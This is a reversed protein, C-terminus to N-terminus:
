QRPRVMSDLLGALRKAQNRRSYFEIAAENRPMPIERTKAWQEYWGELVRAIQESTDATVGAGTRALLDAVDGHDDPTALIPRRAGLYDFLKGTLVGKEGAVTLLLLVSSTQQVAVAQKHPAFPFIRVPLSETAGPLAANIQEASPGYFVVELGGRQVVGRRLLDEVAQLVPRPNQKPLTLNGTYAITFVSRQPPAPTTFLQPDFGNEIVEVSRGTARTLGAALHPSVTVITRALRCLRREHYAWIPRKYWSGRPQVNFSDRVDALWPLRWEKAAEVALGLTVLPDTTAWIADFPAQEWLERMTRMAIQRWLYPALHPSWYPLLKRLVFKQLPRPHPPAPIRRIEVEPPIGTVFDPDFDGRDAPWDECIVTPLWGNEPLYKAFCATRYGAIHNRPPFYFAILLVRKM